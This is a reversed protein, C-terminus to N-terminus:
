SEERKELYGNQTLFGIVMNRIIESDANGVKGRLDTDIIEWVGDPLSVLARRMM